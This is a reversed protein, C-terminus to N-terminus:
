SPVLVFPVQASLTESWNLASVPASFEQDIRTVGTWKSQVANTAVAPTPAVFVTEPVYWTPWVTM